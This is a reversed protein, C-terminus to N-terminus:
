AWFIPQGVKFKLVEPGEYQLCFQMTCLVCEWASSTLAPLSPDTSCCTM